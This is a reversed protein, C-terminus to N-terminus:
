ASFVERSLDWAGTGGRAIWKLGRRHVMDLHTASPRVAVFPAQESLIALRPGGPVFNGPHAGGIIIHRMRGIIVDADRSQWDADTAFEGSQFAIGIRAEAPLMRWWSQPSGFGEEDEPGWRRQTWHCLIPKQTLTALHRVIDRQTTWTWYENMELGPVYASVLHDIEPVIASLRQRMYTLTWRAQGADNDDSGFWVVPALGAKTYDKLAAIALAKDAASEFCDFPRHWAPPPAPIKRWEAGYDGGYTWYLHAADYGKEIHTAILRQRLAAPMIPALHGPFIVDAM